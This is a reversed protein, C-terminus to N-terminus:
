ADSRALSHPAAVDGRAIARARQRLYTPGTSQLWSPMLPTGARLLTALVRLQREQRGSWSLDFRERLEEGLLGVSTLEILRGLSFQVPRWLAAAVRPVDPPSPKALAALVEDVAATHVLTASVTDRFYAQFEEWDGPLDRERIGLLRGLARWQRWFEERERPAFPRGFREHADVIAAALTAHVWAYAAPELASYRNGDPMVGTIQRHFSRIRLGMEGAQQPGGYVMTYTYDLTRLLRGWPDRRFKSHESVGAGVTPHAVQLLLAYGAAVFMRADSARQWAIADRAPVLSPWQEAAPM